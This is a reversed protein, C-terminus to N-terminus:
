TSGSVSQVTLTEFTIALGDGVRRMHGVAPPRRRSADAAAEGLADLSACAFGNWVLHMSRHVHGFFIQRVNGHRNLVSLFADANALKIRDLVPDGIDCPPHHMFLCVGGAGADGLQRDLWALRDACLVGADSGPDLTDLFVMRLAGFSRSTQVFAHGGARGGFVSFYAAREDHNGLMPVTPFPLADLRQKLWRYAGPEGLSTLDGALVCVEAEAYTEGARDLCAGVYAAHAAAEASSDPDLLHLDTMLICSM